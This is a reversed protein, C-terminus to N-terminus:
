KPMNSLADMDSCSALWDVIKDYLADSVNSNKWLSLLEISYKLTEPMDTQLSKKNKCEEYMQQLENDNIRKVNTNVNVAVEEDYEMINNEDFDLIGNKEYLVHEEYDDLGMEYYILEEMIKNCIYSTESLESNTVMIVPETSNDNLNRNCNVNHDNSNHVDNNQHSQWRHNEVL